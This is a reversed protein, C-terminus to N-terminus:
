CLDLLDQVCESFEDDGYDTATSQVRKLIRKTKPAEKLPVKKETVKTPPLRRAQEALMKSEHMAAHMLDDEKEEFFRARERSIPPRLPEHTTARRSPTVIELLDQSSLILDQTSIFDGFQDDDDIHDQQPPSSLEHAIQTNSPLDDVEDLLERIEQTPSPFFDDLHNELFAQTASPPMSPPPRTATSSSNRPPLHPKLLPTPFSISKKEKVPLKPPPMNNPLPQLAPRCVIPEIKHPTSNQSWITQNPMSQSLNPRNIIQESVTEPYLQSAEKMLLRVSPLKASCEQFVPRPLAAHNNPTVNGHGDVVPMKSQQHPQRPTGTSKNSTQLQAEVSRVPLGIGDSKSAAKAAESLLQTAALDAFIQSDTLPYEDDCSKRGPLEQSVERGREEPQAEPNPTPSGPGSSGKKLAVLSSSIKELLDAQSLSPFEGFEDESDEVADVRKTPPHAKRVEKPCVAVRKTPPQADEVMEEAASITGESEEEMVSKMQEWTRKVGEGRVFRSITPQSARVFRNPEPLGQKRREERDANAKLAKKERATKAKAAAREREYEKKQAELEAAERRRQEARSVRPARNAQAYAKKAAKSTMPRVPGNSRVLTTPILEFTRQRGLMASVSGSRVDKHEKCLFLLSWCNKDFEEAIQTDWNQSTSPNKRAIQPLGHSANDINVAPGRTSSL